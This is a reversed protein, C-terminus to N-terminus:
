RGARRSGLHVVPTVTLRVAFLVLAFSAAVLVTLPWPTLELFALLVESPAESFLELDALFNLLDVAGSLRLQQGISFSIAAAVLLSAVLLAYGILHRRQSRADAGALVRDRLDPPPTASELRAFLVDVEDVDDPYM